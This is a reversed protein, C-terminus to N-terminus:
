LVRRAKGLDLDIVETMRNTPDVIVAVLNIQAGVSQPTVALTLGFNM